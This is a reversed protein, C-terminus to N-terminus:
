AAATDGLRGDLAPTLRSRMRLALAAAIVLGAVVLALWAVTLGAGLMDALHLGNDDIKIGAVDLRLERM